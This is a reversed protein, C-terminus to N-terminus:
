QQERCLGDLATGLREHTRQGSGLACLGRDAAAVALHAESRQRQRAGRPTLGPALPDLVEVDGDDAEGVTRREGELVGPEVLAAHENTKAEAGALRPDIGVTRRQAPRAGEDAGRTDGIEIEVCHLPKQGAPADAHGEPDVLVGIDQGAGGIRGVQGILEPQQGGLESM